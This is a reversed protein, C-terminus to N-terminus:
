RFIAGGADGPEAELAVKGLRLAERGAAPALEIVDLGPETKLTQVLTPAAAIKLVPEPRSRFALGLGTTLIVPFLTTWFVAEPERLFERLRVLTLQVLPRASLSRETMACTGDPLPSSSM